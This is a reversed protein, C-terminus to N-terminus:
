DGADGANALPNKVVSSGTFEMFWSYYHFLTLRETTDSEKCCWPSYGVPSRQGMSNELCSYQFPYGNGEGPFRGSGPILGLDGMNCASEKGDSGGPFGLDLILVFFMFSGSGVAAELLLWHYILHYLFISWHASLCFLPFWQWQVSFLIFLFSSLELSRQSLM